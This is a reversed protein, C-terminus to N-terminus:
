RKAGELTEVTIQKGKPETVSCVVERDDQSEWSTQTPQLYYIILESRRYSLGIFDEFRGVCGDFAERDAAKAGPYDSGELDFLAYVEGDHPEGCPIGRVNSVEGPEPVEICDGEQLDFASVDGADTIDGADDRDADDTLTLVAGIAGLGILVAV